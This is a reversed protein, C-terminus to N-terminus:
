VIEVIYLVFRLRTTPFNQIPCFPSKEVDLAQFKSGKNCQDKNLDLTMKALLLLCRYNIKVYM